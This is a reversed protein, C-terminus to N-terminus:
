LTVGELALLKPKRALGGNYGGLSGNSQIVRHCPIIIALQNAGNANGVARAAKPQGIAEALSAYSLTTGYPIKRLQEWVRIQFPSGLLTVPTEFTQLNGAFYRVLEARISSLPSTSRTVIGSSMRLQLNELESELSLCDTFELLYLSDETSVGIMPGLPTSMSQKYLM